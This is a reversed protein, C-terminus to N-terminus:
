VSRSLLRWVGQGSGSRRSRLSSPVHSIEAQNVEIQALQLAESGGVAICEVGCVEIQIVVETGAAVEQHGFREILRGGCRRTHANALARRAGGVSRERFGFLHDGAEVDDFGSVHLLRLGNSSTDRRGSKAGNFHTGGTLQHDFSSRRPPSSRTTVREM